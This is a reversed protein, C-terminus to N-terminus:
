DKRCWLGRPPDPVHEPHVKRFFYFFLFICMCMHTCLCTPIHARARVCVCEKAWQHNQTLFRQVKARPWMALSHCCPLSIWSREPFMGAVTVQWFLGFCIVHGCPFGSSSLPSFKGLDMSPAHWFSLAWHALAWQALVSLSSPGARICGQRKVRLTVGSFLVM